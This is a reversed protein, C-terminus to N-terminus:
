EAGRFERRLNVCARQYVCDHVCFLPYHVSNIMEYNM